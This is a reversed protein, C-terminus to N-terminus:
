RGQPPESVVLQNNFDYYRVQAILLGTLNLTCTNEGFWQGAECFTTSAPIQSASAAFYVRMKLPYQYVTAPSGRYTFHQGSPGDTVTISSAEIHAQQILAEIAALQPPYV